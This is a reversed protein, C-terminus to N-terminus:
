ASVTDAALSERLDQSRHSDFVSGHTDRGKFIGCLHPRRLPGNPENPLPYGNLVPVIADSVPVFLTDGPDTATTPTHRPISEKGSM